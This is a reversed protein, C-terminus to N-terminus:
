RTVTGAPAQAYGAPRTTCTGRGRTRSRLGTAYGFLGALPVAATVVATGSRTTSGTVRGGTRHGGCPM